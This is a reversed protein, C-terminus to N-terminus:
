QLRRQRLVFPDHLRQQVAFAHAFVPLLRALAAPFFPTRGATDLRFRQVALPPAGISSGDHMVRGEYVGVGGIRAPLLRQGVAAHLQFGLKRHLLRLVAM